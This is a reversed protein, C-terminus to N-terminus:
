AKLHGSAHTLSRHEISSSTALVGRSSLRGGLGLKGVGPVRAGTFCRLSGRPGRPQQVQREEGLLTVVHEVVVLLLRLCRSSLGAELIGAMVKLSTKLLSCVFIFLTWSSPLM